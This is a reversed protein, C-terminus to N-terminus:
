LCLIGSVLQSLFSVTSISMRNVDLFSLLFIMCDILIILLGEELYPFRFWNLWNQLVDVLTIGISFLSASWIEVILWPSLLLLLYLVLLGAYESKYCTQCNWTAVLPVLGSTIVFNWVQAYPLNYLYLASEPSIFKMSRILAGIKKLLLSLSLAEIM